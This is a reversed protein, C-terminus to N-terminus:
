TKLADVAGALLAVLRFSLCPGVGLVPFLLELFDLALVLGLSAQPDALALDLLLVRRLECQEQRCDAVEYVAALEFLGALEDAAALLLGRLELSEETSLEPGHEALVGFPGLKGHRHRCHCLGLFQYLLHLLSLILNGPM